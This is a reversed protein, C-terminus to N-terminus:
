IKALILHPPKKGKGNRHMSVVFFGEKFLIPSPNKLTHQIISLNFLDVFFM